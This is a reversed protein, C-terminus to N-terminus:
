RVEAIRTLGPELGCRDPRYCFQCTLDRPSTRAPDPQASQHGDCVHSPRRWGCVGTSAHMQSCDHSTTQFLQLKDCGRRRTTLAPIQGDGSRFQTVCDLMIFELDVILRLDFQAAVADDAEFREKAHTMREAAENAGTCEKRNSFVETEDLLERRKRQR